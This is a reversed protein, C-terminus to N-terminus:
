RKGDKERQSSGSAAPQITQPIPDLCDEALLLRNITSCLERFLQDKHIFADAGCDYASEIYYKGNLQTTMIVRTDRRITKIIRTAEIGNMGPLSIDMLVLVPPRDKIIELAKEASSSSCVQYGPFQIELWSSLKKRLTDHDEVILITLPPQNTLPPKEIMSIVQDPLTPDNINAKTRIM